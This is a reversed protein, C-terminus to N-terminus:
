QCSTKRRLCRRNLYVTFFAILVIAILTLIPKFPFDTSELKPTYLSWSYPNFENAFEKKQAYGAKVLAENVNLYHTVNYEIYVVCVLRSGSGYNDWTYLDDVDLYVSKGYILMKLYEKAEAYGAEDREPADIDALRVRYQTRNTAVIDFTDGDIIDVVAGNLDVELSVCSAISFTLMMVNLLMAAQLTVFSARNRHLM